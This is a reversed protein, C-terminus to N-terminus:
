WGGDGLAMKKVLAIQGNLPWSERFHLKYALIVPQEGPPDELVRNISLSSQFGPGPKSADSHYGHYWVRRLNATPRTLWIVERLPMGEWLGMDFVRDRHPGGAAQRRRERRRVASAL